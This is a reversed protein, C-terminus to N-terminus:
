GKILVKTSSLATGAEVSPDTASVGVSGDGQVYAKAGATLGSLGTVTNGVAKVTATNGNSYAASAFGIFNSATLTTSQPSRAVYYEDNNTDSINVEAGSNNIATESYEGDSGVTSVTTVTGLSPTTGSITIDAHKLNNSSNGAQWYVSHKYTTPNYASNMHRENNTTTHEVENAWTITGGSYTGVASYLNKYGNSQNRQFVVLYKNLNTNYSLSIHDTYDSIWDTTSSMSISGSSELTMVRSRGAQSDQDNWCTVFKDEDPDYVLANSNYNNSEIQYSSSMNPHNSATSNATVKVARGQSAYKFTLVCAGNGYALNLQEVNNNSYPTGASSVTGITTGSIQIQRVECRYSSSQNRYAYFIVDNVSDYAMKMHRSSSSAVTVESGWTITTGSLTGAKIKAYFSSEDRWAYIFCNHAQCWIMDHSGNTNSTNIQTASGFAPATIAPQSVTGNSNVIVAKGSGIAGSATLDVTPASSLPSGNVTIAGTVDIGSTTTELKKNNNHYLEVAANPKVVIADENGNNGTELRLEGDTEAMIRAKIDGATNYFEIRNSQTDATPKFRLRPTSGDLVLIRNVAVGNTNTNFKLVNDYYLNVAGNEVGKLYTETANYNTLRLDNSQIQLQGTENRIISNTANHWFRLDDGAGIALVANDAPLRAGSTWTEFKKSNDYYLEVSGNGTCKVFTENSAYRRLFLHDAASIYLGGTGQDEIFSNTGNHWIQLDDSSGFVAKSSDFFRILDDSGDWLIKTTGSSESKFRFDGRVESGATNSGNILIGTSTTEFKKSNDYYLEAAGNEFFKACAESNDASKIATIPARLILQSDDKIVLNGTTNIIYSDTGGHYIQLDDGAGLMLKKSDSPIQLNGSHIKLNGASDIEVQNLSTSGNTSTGFGLSTTGTNSYANILGTQSSEVYHIEVGKDLSTGTGTFKGRGTVGIGDSTTEFKKSNDYKLEVAANTNAIIM